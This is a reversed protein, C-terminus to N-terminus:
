VHPEEPVGSAERQREEDAKVRDLLRRLKWTIDEGMTMGGERRAGRIADRFIAVIELQAAQFENAQRLGKIESIAEELAVRMYDDM